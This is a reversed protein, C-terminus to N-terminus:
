TKFQLFVIAYHNIFVSIITFHMKEVLHHRQVDSSSYDGM